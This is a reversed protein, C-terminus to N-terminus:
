ADFIGLKYEGPAFPNAGDIEINGGYMSVLFDEDGSPQTDIIIKFDHKEAFKRLQDFFVQRQGTDITIVVKRRPLQESSTDTATSMMKIGACGLVGLLLCAGIILKTWNTLM